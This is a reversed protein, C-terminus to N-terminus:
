RTLIICFRKVSNISYKKGKLDEFVDLLSSFNKQDSDKPLKLKINDFFNKKCKNYVLEFSTEDVM